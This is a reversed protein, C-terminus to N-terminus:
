PVPLRLIPNQFDLPLDGAGYIALLRFGIPDPPTATTIAVGSIGLTNRQSGFVILLYAGLKTHYRSPPVPCGDIGMEMCACQIDVHETCTARTAVHTAPCFLNSISSEKEARAVWEAGLGCEVATLRPAGPLYMTVTRSGVLMSKAKTFAVPITSVRLCWFSLYTAPTFPVLFM